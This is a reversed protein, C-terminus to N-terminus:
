MQTGDHIIVRFFPNWELFSQPQSIKTFKLSKKKASQAAHLWGSVAPWSPSPVTERWEGKKAGPDPARHWGTVFFHKWKGDRGAQPRGACQTPAPLFPREPWSSCPSHQRGGALTFPAFRHFGRRWGEGNNYKQRVNEEAGSFAACEQVQQGTEAWPSMPWTCKVNLQLTHPWTAPPLHVQSNEVQDTKMMMVKLYACHELTVM